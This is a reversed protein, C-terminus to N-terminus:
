MASLLVPGNTNKHDNKMRIVDALTTVVFCAIYSLKSFLIKLDNEQGM